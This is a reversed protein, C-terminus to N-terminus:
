LVSGTAAESLRLTCFFKTIYGVSEVLWCRRIDEVSRKVRYRGIDRVYLFWEISESQLEILQNGYPLFM